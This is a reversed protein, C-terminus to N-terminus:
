NRIKFLHGAPIDHGDIELHRLAKWMIAANSTIVPIELEQELLEITGMAPLNTCSIFVADCGKIIDRNDLVMNVIQEHTIEPIESSRKCEYSAYDVVNIGNDDFFQVELKNIEEPYPTVMFIKRLNLTAFACLVATTTTSATIGTLSQIRKSLEVDFGKGKLFSASTCCFLIIQPNVHALGEAAKGTSDVIQQLTDISVMSARGQFLRNTHFAIGQPLFVHFDNEVFVDASPVLLGIRKM